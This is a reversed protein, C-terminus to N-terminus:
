EADADIEDLGLIQRRERATFGPAVLSTQSSVGLLGSHPTLSMSAAARMAWAAPAASATSEVQAVGIRVRGIASPESTTICEAVLYKFPWESTIAPAKHKQLSSASHARARWIRWLCPRM